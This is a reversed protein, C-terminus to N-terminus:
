TWWTQRSRERRVDDRTFSVPLVSGDSLRRITYNEGDFGDIEFGGAWRGEFRDRVEVPTGRELSPRTRPEALTSDSM